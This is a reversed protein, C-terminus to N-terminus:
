LLVYEHNQNCHKDPTTRGSDLLSLFSLSRPDSTHPQSNWHLASYNDGVSVTM